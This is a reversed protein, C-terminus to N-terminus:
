PDIKTELAILHRYTGVGKWEDSIYTRSSLLDKIKKYIKM